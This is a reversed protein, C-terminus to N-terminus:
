QATYQGKVQSTSGPIYNSGLYVYMMHCPHSPYLSSCKCASRKANGIRAPTPSENLQRGALQREPFRGDASGLMVKREPREEQM